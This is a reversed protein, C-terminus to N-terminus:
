FLIRSVIDLRIGIACQVQGVADNIRIHFAM